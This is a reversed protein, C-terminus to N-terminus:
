ILPPLESKKLAALKSEFLFRIKVAKAKAENAKNGEFYEDITDHFLKIWEDFHVAEIGLGVHKPFPSGQYTNQLFLISNWFNYIIELHPQWDEDTPIRIKFVPSLLDNQKVKKYFEDLLLKIDEFTEIDRKM